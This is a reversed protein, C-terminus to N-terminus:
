LIDKGDFSVYLPDKFIFKLEMSDYNFSTCNWTFNLKTESRSKNYDDGEYEEIEFPIITINLTENNIHSINQQMM